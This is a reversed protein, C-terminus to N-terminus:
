NLAFGAPGVLHRAEAGAERDTPSGGTTATPPSTRILRGQLIRELDSAIQLGDLPSRLQDRDSVPNVLFATVIIVLETENRQFRSSRFLTGLIPVDGVGPVKEVSSRTNNSVLGGIAFSQGSGLEITTEARRVKLAPIVLEGLRIAGQDSLESVEPRVRLSIRSKNLVTPTFALSVGFEKFEITIENDDQAIPIPFEGGALFSATEGSLATLNPQALITILGERELLDIIGNVDIGNNSYNGAVSNTVGADDVLRSFPPAGTPAFERGTSFGYLFNGTEFATDLNIGFIKVVERSLEAVKVHISVQTPELVDLRTILNEEEGLFNEAMAKIEGAQSANAVQGEVLIGNELSEVRIDEGPAIERLLSELKGLSHTVVVNREFLVNGDVDVAYVTTTGARRGFVYVLSSSQAQVDAVEPDAVFVSAAPRPLRVVTGRRVELTLTSSARTLSSQS